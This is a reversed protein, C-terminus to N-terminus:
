YSWYFEPMHLSVVHPHNEWVGGYNSESQISGTSQQSQRASSNPPRGELQSLTGHLHSPYGPTNNAGPFRVTEIIGAQSSVRQADDQHVIGVEGVRAYAGTRTPNLIGDGMIMGLDPGQMENDTSSMHANSALSSYSFTPTPWNAQRLRYPQVPPRASREEASSFFLPTNRTTPPASSSLEGRSNDTVPQAMYIESGNDSGARPLSPPDNQVSIKEDFIEKQSVAEDQNRETLSKKTVALPQPIIPDTVARDKTNQRSQPPRALPTVPQIRPLRSPGAQPKSSSSPKSTSPSPKSTSSSPKSTSSSPKSTSPKPPTDEYKSRNTPPGPANPGTPGTKATRPKESEQAWSNSGPIPKRPESM